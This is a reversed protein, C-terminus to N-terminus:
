IIKSADLVKERYLLTRLEDFARLSVMGLSRKIDTALQQTAQLASSEMVNLLTYFVQPRGAEVPGVIRDLLKKVQLLEPTTNRLEKEDQPTIVRLTVLIHAFDNVNTITDCM